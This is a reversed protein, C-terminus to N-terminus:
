DYCDNCYTERGENAFWTAWPTTGNYFKIKIIDTDYIITPDDKSVLQIRYFTNTEGSTGKRVKVKFTHKYTTTSSIRKIGNDEVEETNYAIPTGNENVETVVVNANNYQTYIDLTVEDNAYLSEGSNNIAPILLDWSNNGGTHMPRNEIRVGLIDNTAPEPEQATSYVNLTVSFQKNNYKYEWIGNAASCLAETTNTTPNVSCIRDSYNTDEDIWMRFRYNKEYNSTNAPVKASLIVKETYNQEETYQALTNYMKEGQTYLRTASESNNSEVETLYTQIVGTMVEDSNTTMRATVTYPIEYSRPSKSTIKFNFGTGATRANSNSAVPLADAISIGTGQGDLEEYHFVIEGATITSDGAGTKAYNFFAVTAGVTVLIIGMVFLSSLVAIKKKNM